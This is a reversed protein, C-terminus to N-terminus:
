CQRGGVEMVPTHMGREFDFFFFFYHNAYMHPEGTQMYITRAYGVTLPAFAFKSFKRRKKIKM